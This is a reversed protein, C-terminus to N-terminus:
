SHLLSDEYIFHEDITKEIFDELCFFLAYIFFIDTAVKIWFLFTMVIFAFFMTAYRPARWIFYCGNYIFFAAFVSFGSLGSYLIFRCYGIDTGYVFNGFLGSGIIWTKTDQPWIWMENNLKDTSGTRWEGQEVLNFFGEFAFRMHGYFADNTHYIYSSVMVAVVFVCGFLIGLRLSNSRIELQFLGSFVLFYLIGTAVGIITTRSIANGIVAVTFFALLLFLINGSSKRVGMDHCILAAIMVLVVSFRVGASDLAAGIGYLRDVDNYFEQGQSVYSDVWIQFVTVNDILLALVCQSLCVGALYFVLLRFTAQGHADKIIQSIAYAGALWVFFSGVYSVYSFDNTMNVDTSIYCLLSFLLAFGVGGLVGTSFSVGKARIMNYGYWGGGLFGLIMKTNIVNPLFMFGIPFFYFSVLVGIALYQIIRM